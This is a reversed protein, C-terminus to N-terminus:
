QGAEMSMLRRAFRCPAGCSKCINLDGGCRPCLGLRLQQRSMQEVPTREPMYMGRSLPVTAPKVCYINEGYQYTHREIRGGKRM